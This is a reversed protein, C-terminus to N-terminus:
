ETLALLYSQRYNPGSGVSGIATGIFLKPIGCCKKPASLRPPTDRPERKMVTYYLGIRRCLPHVPSILASFLSQFYHRKIKRLPSTGETLKNLIGPLPADDFNCLV